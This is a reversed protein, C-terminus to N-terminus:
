DAPKTPPGLEAEFEWPQEVNQRSTTKQTQIPAIRTCSADRRADRRGEGARGIEAATATAARLLGPLMMVKPSTRHTVADSVESGEQTRAKRRREGETRRTRSGQRGGDGDTARNSNSNNSNYRAVDADKAGQLYLHGELARQSNVCILSRIRIRILTPGGGGCEYM